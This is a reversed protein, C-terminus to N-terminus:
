PATRTARARDSGGPSAARRDPTAPLLAAIADVSDVREASFDIAGLDLGFHQELHLVLRTLALSDLRGSVFLSDSDALAGADGAERLAETLYSRLEQRVAADM